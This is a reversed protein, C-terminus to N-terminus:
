YIMWPMPEWYSVESKFSSLRPLNYTFTTLVTEDTNSLHSYEEATFLVSVHAEDRNELWLMGGREIGYAKVTMWDWNYFDVASYGQAFNAWFHYTVGVDGKYDYQASTWVDIKPVEIEYESFAIKLGVFSIALVKYIGAQEIPIEADIYGKGFILDAISSFSQRAISFNAIKGNVVFIAYKLNRCDASLSIVTSDDYTRYYGYNYDVMELPQRVYDDEGGGGAMAFSTFIGM